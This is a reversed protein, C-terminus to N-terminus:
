NLPTNDELPAEQTIPVEQQAHEPTGIKHRKTNDNTASDDSDHASSESLRHRKNSPYRGKPPSNMQPIHQKPWVKHWEPPSIPGFSNIDTIKWEEGIHKTYLILDEEGIAIRTKFDPNEQRRDYCYKSLDANRNHLQPPIFPKTHIKPRDTGNLMTNVTIAKRQLYDASKETAFHIFLKDTNESRPRTIRLVDLNKCEEHSYKLELMLFEITTCTYLDDTTMDPTFLREFDM